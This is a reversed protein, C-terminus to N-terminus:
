GSLHPIGLRERVVACDHVLSGAKYDVHGGAGIQDEQYSGLGCPLCRKWSARQGVRYRLYEEGVTIAAGCAGCSHVKRAKSITSDNYTGM